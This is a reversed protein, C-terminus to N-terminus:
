LACWAEINSKLISATKKKKKKKEIHTFFVSIGRRLNKLFSKTDINLASSKKLFIHVNKIYINIQVAFNKTFKKLHANFIAPFRRL